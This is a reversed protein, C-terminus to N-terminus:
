TSSRAKGRSRTRMTNSAEGTGERHFAEEVSSVVEKMDILAEVDTESLVITM